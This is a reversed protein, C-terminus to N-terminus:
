DIQLIKSIELDEGGVEKCSEHYDVDSPILGVILFNVKPILVVLNKERM